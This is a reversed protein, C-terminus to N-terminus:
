LLRFLADVTLGLGVVLSPYFTLPEQHESVWAQAHAIWDTARTGFFVYLAVPAWVLVSAVLVYVAVLSVEEASGLAAGSITAAVIFTLGLRKPGGIGLAIGTGLAAAPKLRSLRTVMAKTRAGAARPERPVRPRRSRSRVAAAAALLAVGLALAVLSTITEHNDKPESFSADGIAFALLLVIAQAAFFGIAFAIGNIRPRTSKLVALTAGLALPSTAAVLAYLVVRFTTEFM